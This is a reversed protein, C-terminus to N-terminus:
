SYACPGHRLSARPQGWGEWTDFAAGRGEGAAFGRVHTGPRPRRAERHPTLSLERLFRRQLRAKRAESARREGRSEAGRQSLSWVVASPASPDRWEAFGEM